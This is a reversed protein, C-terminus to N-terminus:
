AVVRGILLDALRQCKLEDVCKKCDENVKSCAQAWRLVIDDQEQTLFLSDPRHKRPVIVPPVLKEKVEGIIETRYMHDIKYGDVSVNLVDVGTRKKMRSIVTRLGTQKKTGIFGCLDEKSVYVGPNKAMKGLVQVMQETLEISHMDGIVVVRRDVDIIMRVSGHQDAM